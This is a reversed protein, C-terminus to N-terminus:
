HFRMSTAPHGSHHLQAPPQTLLNSIRQITLCFRQSQTEVYHLTWVSWGARTQYYLHHTTLSFCWSWESLLQVDFWGGVKYCPLLRWTTTGPLLLAASLAQPIPRPWVLHKCFGNCPKAMFSDHCLTDGNPCALDAVTIAHLCLHIQNLVQLNPGTFGANLLADMLYTNGACLLPPDPFDEFVWIAHAETFEWTSKYWSLPIYSSYRWYSTTGLSSSVRLKMRFAELTHCILDGTQSQSFSTQLFTQIHCLGQTYYPHQWGLAQFLRPAFFPTCPTNRTIAARQLM